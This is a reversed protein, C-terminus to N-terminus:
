LLTCLIPPNKAEYGSLQRGYSSLNTGLANLDSASSAHLGGFGAIDPLRPWPTNSSGHTPGMSANGQDIRLIGLRDAVIVEFGM